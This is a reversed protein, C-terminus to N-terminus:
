GFKIQKGVINSVMRNKNFSDMNESTNNPDNLSTGRKKNNGVIDSIINKKQNVPSPMESHVRM